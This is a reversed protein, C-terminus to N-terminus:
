RSHAELFDIADHVTSGPHAAVQLARLVYPALTEYPETSSEDLDPHYGGIRHLIGALKLTLHAETAANWQALFERTDTPRDDQQDM